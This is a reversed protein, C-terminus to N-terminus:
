GQPLQLRGSFEDYGVKEYIKEPLQQEIEPLEYRTYYSRGAVEQPDSLRVTVPFPGGGCDPPLCWTGTLDGSGTAEDPEWSTWEIENLSTFETLVLGKPEQYDAGQEASWTNFVWVDAAQGGEAPSSTPGPVVQSPTQPGCGTLLGLACLGAIGLANVRGM